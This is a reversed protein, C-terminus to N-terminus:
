PLESPLERPLEAILELLVRDALEAYVDEAFQPLPVWEREIDLADQSLLCGLLLEVQLSCPSHSM